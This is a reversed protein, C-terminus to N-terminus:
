YHHKLLIAHKKKGYEAKMNRKVALRKSHLWDFVYLRWEKDTTDETIIFRINRGNMSPVETICFSKFSDSEKWLGGLAKKFSELSQDTRSDWQTSTDPSEIDYLEFTEWEPRFWITHSQPGGSFYAKLGKSTKEIPSYKIVTSQEKRERGPGSQWIRFSSPLKMDVLCSKSTSLIGKALATWDGYAVVSTFNNGVMRIRTNNTGKKSAKVPWFTIGYKLSTEHNELDDRVFDLFKHEVCELGDVGMDFSHVLLKDRSRPEEPCLIRMAHVFGPQIQNIGYNELAAHNSPIKWYATGRGELNLQIIDTETEPPELVTPVSGVNQVFVQWPQDAALFPLIAKSFFNAWNRPIMTITQRQVSNRTPIDVDFTWNSEAANAPYQDTLILAARLFSEETNVAELKGHYGYVIGKATGAEPL